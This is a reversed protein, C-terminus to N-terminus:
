YNNAHQHYHHHYHVVYHNVRRRPYHNNAQHSLTGFAQPPSSTSQSPPPVPQQQLSHPIPGNMLMDTGNSPVAGVISGNTPNYYQSELNIKPNLSFLRLDEEIEEETSPRMAPAAPFGHIKHIRSLLAVEDNYSKLERSQNIADVPPRFGFEPVLSDMLRRERNVRYWEETTNLLLKARTEARDKMFQQHLQERNARTQIDICIRQYKRRLEARNIRENRVSQIDSCAKELEPHTGEACMEIEAVYRAMKNLHMQDRLKAFEIEIDTLMMLAEKREAQQAALLEEDTLKKKISKSDETDSFNADDKHHKTDNTCNTAGEKFSDYCHPSKKNATAVPGDNGTPDEDDTSQIISRYKSSAPRQVTSDKHGDTISTEVKTGNPLGIEVDDKEHTDLDDTNNSCPADNTPIHLSKSSTGVDATLSQGDLKPSLVENTAKNSVDGSPNNNTDDADLNSTSVHLTEFTPATQQQQASFPHPLPNPSTSKQKTSDQETSKFGQNDNTKIKKLSETASSSRRRKKSKIKEDDLPENTVSEENMDIDDDNMEIDGDIDEIDSVIGHKPLPSLDDESDDHPKTATASVLAVTNRRHEAELLDLEHLEPAGLRETEAESDPDSLDSTNMDPMSTDILDDDEKSLISNTIDQPLFGDDNDDNDPDSSSLSSLSSSSPLKTQYDSRSIDSHDVVPLDLVVQPLSPLSESSLDPLDAPKKITSTNKELTTITDKNSPDKAERLLLAQITPEADTEM